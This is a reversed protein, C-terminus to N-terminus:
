ANCVEAKKELLYKAAAEAIVELAQNSVLTENAAFEDDIEYETTSRIISTGCDKELIELRLRYLRFGMDLYGGEILEVVKVRNENDIEVFKEKYFGFPMGPPLTVHLITGVGGDGEIVQIKEVMYPLREKILQALKLTSYLEWVHTAPVGVELENSLQGHM